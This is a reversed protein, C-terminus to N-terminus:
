EVIRAYVITLAGQELTITTVPSDDTPMELKVTIGAASFELINEGIPRATFAEQGVPKFWLANEDDVTVALTRIGDAVEPPLGKTALDAESAETLRYDGVALAALGDRLAVTAHAQKPKVEEGYAAAVAARGVEDANVAGNNCLVVVVLDDEPIRLFFSTFGDIGGNHFIRLKGDKEAVIWGYAYDDMVPTVLLRRSAESLIRGDRLVQHWKWLDRVSSRIAGAAHPLSMDIDHALEPTADGGEYGQARNAAGSADGVVTNALGFPDFIVAQMYAAYSEHTVAEIIAGLLVYGSNSYSWKSGPPFDLPRASFTAVLQETTLPEARRAMLAEDDTYSPVGATHSLLQHLTVDRAPGDYEPLYTAVTAELSVKGEDVLHLIAAATFQKTVSGIRFSTDGDLGRKSSWDAFGFGQEYLVDDGSAVFVMGNFWAGVGEAAGVSDVFPTLVSNIREATAVAASRPRHPVEVVAAPKPSSSCALSLGLATVLVLASRSM